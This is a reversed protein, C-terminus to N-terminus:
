RHMSEKIVDWNEMPERGLRKSFGGGQTSAEAELYPGKSPSIDYIM